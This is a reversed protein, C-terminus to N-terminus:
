NLLKQVRKLWKILNAKKLSEQNKQKKKSFKRMRKDGAEVRKLEKLREYM